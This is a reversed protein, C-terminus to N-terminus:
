VGHFHPDSARKEHAAARCPYVRTGEPIMDPVLWAPDLRVCWQLLLGLHNALKEASALDLEPLSSNMFNRLKAEDVGAAAALAALDEGCDCIANRLRPSIM